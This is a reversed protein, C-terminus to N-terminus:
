KKHYLAINEYILPDKKVGLISDFMKLYNKSMLKWTWGEEVTKRANKGMEVVKDKNRKCWELKEVYADISKDVLFGNYGDVIFEPMNGIRNSIIPRGCAAAELAPNPTGDEDSAVIFVDMDQYTQYMHIYPKRNRYDSTNTISDVGALKMAPFIFKEQGKLPSSKAIHGVRLPKDPDIPKIPRFLEEDVGNPVYHVKPHFTQMEKLLLISNAHINEAKQMWRKIVTMPRHATVGTIKKHKPIRKLHNIYSYGYTFWLDYNANLNIPLSNVGIINIIDINYHDALYYKLYQSKNWWAWGMVDCILLISKKNVDKKIDKNMENFFKQDLMNSLHSEAQIGSNDLINKVKSIQQPNLKITTLKKIKEEDERKKEKFIKVKKQYNYYSDKYDKPMDIWASMGPVINFDFWQKSM